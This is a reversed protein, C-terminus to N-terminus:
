APVEHPPRGAARRVTEVLVRRDQGRVGFLTFGALSVGVSVAFLLVALALSRTNHGLTVYLALSVAIQLILGPINPAILRKFWTLLGCDFVRLYYRAAGAM